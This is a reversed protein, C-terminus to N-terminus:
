LSKIFGSIEEDLEKARASLERSVDLLESASRGAESAASQVGSINASVERTAVSQEEVAGSVSTSISSIRTIIEVIHSISGATSSISGQIGHIKDGIDGTARQTQNSLAKVENAVVAFGRGAEGARAAEITANLALLDTKGAIQSILQTVNGISDAAHVLDKVLHESQRAEQVAERTIREAEALQNSIENVAAALEEASAAVASSQKNTQEAGAALTGATAQVENAARSLQDVLKSVKVSLEDTATKRATLDTAYKVVKFPKGNMDLIPNYSAEIWVVKGGNGIRKFRGAQYEGRNLREWFMRYDITNRENPDMFMSHHQGQIQSLSYGTASLFNQNATIISGDMNFEIVAQSKKIADIQGTFDATILKQATVDTAFKVVKYTVGKVDIVPNYSAQIWVEKGGKGLRKYEAAQYEGRALRAWFARYDASAAYDSDVFMSHHRGEVEASSYGLANLFNHNARVITGDPMFEIIAQSRDLAQMMAELDLLRPNIAIVDASKSSDARAPNSMFPLKLM